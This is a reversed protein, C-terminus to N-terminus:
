RARMRQGDNRRVSGIDDFTSNPIAPARDSM